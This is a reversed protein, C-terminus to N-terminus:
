VSYFGSQLVIIGCKMAVNSGLFDLVVGTLDM